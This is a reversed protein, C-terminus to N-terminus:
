HKVVSPGQSFAIVHARQKRTQRTESLMVDEPSTWPTAPTLIDERKIWTVRQTSVARQTRGDRQRRM